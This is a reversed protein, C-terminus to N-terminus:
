PTLPTPGRGAPRRAGPRCGEPGRSGWGPVAPRGTPAGGEGEAGHRVRPNMGPDRIRGGGDAEGKPVRGRGASSDAQAGSPHFGREGPGGLDSEGRARRGPGTALARPPKTGWTDM